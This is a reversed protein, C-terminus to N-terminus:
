CKHCSRNRGIAHGVGSLRFICTWCEQNFLAECKEGTEGVLWPSREVSFKWKMGQSKHYEYLKPSRYLKKVEKAMVKYTKANDSVMLAPVGRRACFKRFARIFSPVDLSRILELHVARTSACTFLCVYCKEEKKDVGRSYLPGAFDVGTNSFPPSEDTRFHPLDPTINLKFPLGEVKKCPICRKIVKKVLERGRLIWFRERVCSLTEGIGDHFVKSHAEQAVLESFYCKSPLLISKKEVDTFAANGLRTRCRLIQEEDM